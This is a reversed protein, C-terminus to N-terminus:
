RDGSDVGAAVLRPEAAGPDDTVPGGSGVIKGEAAELM